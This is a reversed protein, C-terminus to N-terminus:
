PQIVNVTVKVTDGPQKGNKERIDKRVGIIYCVSGDENKVGMNVISASYPEGDFTIEAKVRGKGFEQRVDYPFRVYAGGKDPVPEIQAQFECYMGDETACCTQTLNKEAEM